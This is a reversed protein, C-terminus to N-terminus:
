IGSSYNFFSADFDMREYLEFTQRQSREIVIREGDRPADGDTVTADDLAPSSDAMTSGKPTSVDQALMMTDLPLSCGVAPTIPTMLGQAITGSTGEDLSLMTLYWLALPATLSGVGHNSLPISQLQCDALTRPGGVRESPTFAFRCLALEKETLLFGYSAQAIKCANALQRLPYVSNMSHMQGDQVKDAWWQAVHKSQGVVLHQTPRGSLSLVYSPAASRGDLCITKPTERDFTRGSAAGLQKKGEEVAPRIAGTLWQLLCQPLSCTRFRRQEDNLESACLDPVSVLTPPLNMGTALINGYRTEITDLNLDSWTAVYSLEPWATSGHNTQNKSLCKANPVPIGVTLYQKLSTTSPQYNM